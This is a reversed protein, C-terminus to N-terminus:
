YECVPKDQIQSIGTKFDVIRGEDRSSIFSSKYTANAKIYRYTIHLFFMIAVIGVSNVSYVLAENM